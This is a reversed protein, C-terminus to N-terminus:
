KAHHSSDSALMKAFYSNENEVLILPDAYEVISGREMVLIRNCDVVSQLKHAIIFLTCNAFNDAITKQVLVETEPDMNSTAEDLVVIKNNKIIARALCILQRQGTSFNSGHDTIPLQLTPIHEKMHVKELTKWIEDDTYRNLPDINQRM